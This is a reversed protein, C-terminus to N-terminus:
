RDGGESFSGGVFVLDEALGRVFSADKCRADDGPRDCEVEVVYSLGNEVWTVSWIAENQTVWAPRDGRVRDTGLVSPINGYRHTVRTASVNITLGSTDSEKVRANAAYFNDRVVLETREAVDATRPVLVPLHSTKVASRAKPSLRALADADVASRAPWSAHQVDVAKTLPLERSRAPLEGPEAAPPADASPADCGVLAGVALAGIGLAVFVRNSRGRLM